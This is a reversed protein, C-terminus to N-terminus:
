VQARLEAREWRPPPASFRPRPTGPLARGPAGREAQSQEPRAASGPTSSRALREAVGATGAERQRERFEARSPREQTRGPEAALQGSPAEASLRAWPARPCRPPRACAGWCTLPQAPPRPSRARLRLTPTAQVCRPQAPWRRPPPTTVRHAPQRTPTTQGSIPAHGTPRPTQPHPRCFGSGAPAREGPLGGRGLAEPQSQPDPPPLPARHGLHGRIERGRTDLPSWAPGGGPAGRGWPRTGSHKGSPQARSPSLRLFSHPWGIVKGEPPGQRFSESGPGTKIVGPCTVM